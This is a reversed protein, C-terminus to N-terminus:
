RRNSLQAGHRRQVPGSTPDKQYRMIRVGHSNGGFEILSGDALATTGMIRGTAAAALAARQEGELSQCWWLYRVYRRHAMAWSLPWELFHPRAFWQAWEEGTFEARVTPLAAPEYDPVPAWANIQWRVAEPLYPNTWTTIHWERAFPDILFRLEDGARVTVSEALRRMYDTTM